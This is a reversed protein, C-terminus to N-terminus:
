LSTESVYAACVLRLRTQGVRCSLSEFSVLGTHTSASEGQLAFTRSYPLLCCKPSGGESHVVQKQPWSLRQLSFSLREYLM